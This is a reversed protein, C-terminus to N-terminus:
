LYAITYIKLITTKDCHNSRRRYLNHSSLSDRSIIQSNSVESLKYLLISRDIAKSLINSDITKRRCHNIEKKHTAKQWLVISSNRNILLISILIAFNISFRINCKVRRHCLIIFQHEITMKMKISITSVYIKNILIQRIQHAFIAIKSCSIM